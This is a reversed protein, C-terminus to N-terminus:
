LELVARSVHQEAVLSRAIQGGRGVDLSSSPWDIMEPTVESFISM